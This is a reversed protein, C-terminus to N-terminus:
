VLSVVNSRLITSTPSYAGTGGGGRGGALDRDSNGAGIDTFACSGVRSVFSEGDSGNVSSM